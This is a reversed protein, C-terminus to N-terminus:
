PELLAVDPYAHVQADAPVLTVGEELAQAILLRDFPDRHLDPLPADFDDGIEIEGAYLGLSCWSNNGGM